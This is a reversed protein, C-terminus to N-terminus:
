GNGAPAQVKAGLQAIYLMEWRDLIREIEFKERALQRGREAMLAREDDPLRLVRDM